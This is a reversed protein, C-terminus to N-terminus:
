AVDVNRGNTFWGRSRYRYASPLWTANFPHRSYMSRCVAAPWVLIFRRSRKSILGRQSSVRRSIVILIPRFSGRTLSLLACLAVGVAWRSRECSQVSLETIAVVLRFPGNFDIDVTTRTSNIIIACASTQLSERPQSACTSACNAQLEISKAHMRLLM